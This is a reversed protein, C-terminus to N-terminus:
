LLKKITDELMTVHKKEENIAKKVILSAQKDTVQLLENYLNITAREIKLAFKVAQRDNLQVATTVAAEESAFIRGGALTEIYTNSEDDEELPSNNNMELDDQMRAFTIEHAKEAEALQGGLEKVYKNRASEALAEYFAAGNSEERVILELIEVALIQNKM